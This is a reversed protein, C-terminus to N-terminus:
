RPTVVVYAAPLQGAADVLATRVVAAQRECSDRLEAPTVHVVTIGLAELRDRLRVTRSWVEDDRFVAEAAWGGTEFAGGSPDAYVDERAGGGMAVGHDMAMGGYAVAGDYGGGYPGRDGPRRGTRPDIALAVGHDPWYADVAGLAPGGPLRL